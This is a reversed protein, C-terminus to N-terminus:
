FYKVLNVYVQQRVYISSRQMTAIHDNAKIFYQESLQKDKKYYEALCINASALKANKEVSNKIEGSQNIINEIVDIYDSKIKTKDEKLLKLFIDPAFIKKNLVGECFIIFNSIDKIALLIDAYLDLFDDYKLMEESNIGGRIQIAKEVCDLAKTFQHMELYCKALNQHIGASEPELKLAEESFKICQEHDQIKLYVFSLNLIIETDQNNALYCKNFSKLAGLFKNQALLVMGLNKNLNYDNPNQKLLDYLYIEAKAYNAKSILENLKSLNNVM